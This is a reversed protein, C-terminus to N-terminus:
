NTGQCAPQVKHSIMYAQFWLRGGAERAIREISATAMTSLVYPVGVARAARAIALDGGRRGFGVAGMPAVVLPMQAAQRLITTGTDVQEVDVLVRPLLVRIPKNPYDSQAIAHGSAVGLTVSLGALLCALFDRKIEHRM